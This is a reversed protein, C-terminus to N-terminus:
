GFEHHESLHCVAAEHESPVHALTELSEAHPCSAEKAPTTSTATCM